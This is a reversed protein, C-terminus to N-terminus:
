YKDEIPKIELDEIRKQKLDYIFTFSDRVSATEYFIDGKLKYSKNVAFPKINLKVVTENNEEKYEDLLGCAIQTMMSSSGSEDFISNSDTDRNPNQYEFLESETMEQFDLELLNALEISMHNCDLITEDTIYSFYFLKDWPVKWINIDETKNEYEALIKEFVKKNPILGNIFNTNKLILETDINREVEDSDLTDLILNLFLDSNYIQYEVFINEFLRVYEKKLQQQENPHKKDVPALINNINIRGHLTELQIAIYFRNYEDSIPPFVGLIMNLTEPSNIESATKKVVTEVDKIITATQTIKEIDSIHRFGYNIYKFSEFILFSLVSILGLTIFLVVGNKNKKM